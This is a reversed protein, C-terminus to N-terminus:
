KIYMSEPLFVDAESAFKPCPYTKWWLHCPVGQLCRPVPILSERRLPSEGQSCVATNRNRDM